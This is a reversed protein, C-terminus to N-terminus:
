SGPCEPVSDAKWDPEDGELPLGPAGDQHSPCKRLWIDSGNAGYNERCKPCHMVYLYQGHDTGRRVPDTPGLNIQCNRNIYGLEATGKGSM